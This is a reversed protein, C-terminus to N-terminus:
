SRCLVHSFCSLSEMKCIRRECKSREFRRNGGVSSAELRTQHDGFSRRGHSRQVSWLISCNGYDPSCVAHGWTTKGSFGFCLECLRYDGGITDLAKTWLENPGENDSDMTSLCDIERKRSRVRKGVRADEMEFRHWEKGSVKGLQLNKAIEMLHGYKRFFADKDVNQFHTTLKNMKKADSRLCDGETLQSLESNKGYEIISSKIITM